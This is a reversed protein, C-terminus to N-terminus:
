QNRLLTQVGQSVSNAAKAIIDTTLQHEAMEKQLTILNSMNLGNDNQVKETLHILTHTKVHHTDSIRQLTNLIEDGPTTNQPDIDLKPATIADHPTVNIEPTLLDQNSSITINDRSTMAAQYAQETMANAFANSLTNGEISM